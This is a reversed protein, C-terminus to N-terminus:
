KKAERRADEAESQLHVIYNEIISLLNKTFWYLTLGSPFNYIIFMVTM